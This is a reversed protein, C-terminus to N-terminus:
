PRLRCGPCSWPSCPFTSCDPVPWICPGICPSNVAFFGSWKQTTSWIWPLFTFFPSLSGLRLRLWRCSSRMARAVVVRASLFVQLHALCETPNSQFTREPRSSPLPSLLHLICLILTVWLFSHLATISRPCLWFPTWLNTWNVIFEWNRM